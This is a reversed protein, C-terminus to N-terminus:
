RDPQGLGVSIEASGLFADLCAPFDILSTLCRIPAPRSWSPPPTRAPSCGSRTARRGPGGVDHRGSPRRRLGDRRARAHRRGQRRGLGLRGGRRRRAGPPRLHLRANPEYKGTIVVVRAAARGSRPSRRAGCRAAAPSTDIATAPYLEGTTTAPRRSRTPRSGAAGDRRRAASRAPHRDRRRRHVRRDRGVLARYTAAIGPRSDVLTLDLDFGVVLPGGVDGLRRHARLRGGM